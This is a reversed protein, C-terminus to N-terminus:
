LWITIRNNIKTNWKQREMSRLGTNKSGLRNAWKEPYFNYYDIHKKRRLRVFLFFTEWIFSPIGIIPLFLPGLIMSQITHGYEHVLIRESDIGKRM